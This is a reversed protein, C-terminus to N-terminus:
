LFEKDKTLLVSYTPTGERCWDTESVLVYGGYYSEKIHEVFYSKGGVKVIDRLDNYPEIVWSEELALVLEEPIEDLGLCAALEIKINIYDQLIEKM